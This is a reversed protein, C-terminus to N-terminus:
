PFLSQWKGCTPALSQSAFLDTCSWITSHYFEHRRRYIICWAKMWNKCGSNKVYLLPPNLPPALSASHTTSIHSSGSIGRLSRKLLWKCVIFTVIQKCNINQLIKRMQKFSSCKRFINLRTHSHEFSCLEWYVFLSKFTFRMSDSITWPDKIKNWIWQQFPFILTNELWEVFFPFALLKYIIELPKGMEKRWRFMEGDRRGVSGVNMWTCRMGSLASLFSSLSYKKKRSFDESIPWLGTVWDRIPRMQRTHVCDPTHKHQPTFM